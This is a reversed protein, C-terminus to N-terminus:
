AAAAGDKASLVIDGFDDTTIARGTGRLHTSNPPMNSTVVAPSTNNEENSLM